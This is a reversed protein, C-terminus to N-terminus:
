CFSWVHGTLYQGILPAAMLRLTQKLATDVTASNFHSQVFAETLEVTDSAVQEINQM